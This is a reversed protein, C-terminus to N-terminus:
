QKLNLHNSIGALEFMFRFSFNGPSKVGDLRVGWCQGTYKLTVSADRLGAGTVDYWLSSVVQINKLPSFAAGVTYVNIEEKRDYRQGLSLTAKSVPITLDSLITALRRGYYDYSTDVQLSVPTKIGAELRIPLFPSGSNYTDIGQTLRVTLAESGKIIGRNLISFEVASTKGFLETADYVPIPQSSKPSYIFHYRISPEIIHTFLPFSRFFRTHATADYEFAAKLTDKPMDTDAAGRYFTYGTGRLGVTQLATVDTGFSHSLRSYLDLRGASVGNDRYFDSAATTAALMVEGVRTNNMVFGIEPLKQPTSVLETGTPPQLDIWYQSLFYARSNNMPVSIEGTSEVFRQIRIDRHTDYEQYFDKKNVYNLNLFGAFTGRDRDEHLARVELFDKGLQTDKIHYAWWASKINGPEIFRYEIGTGIGRKSFTDVVLTADRNEAIAWYFPVHLSTGRTKSYGPMPILFGTHRETDISASMYPTYLVPLDKIRFTTGQSKITDGVIINVEKGKFCWDPVPTDCTTFTAEPSYYYNEGKKELIKGSLHYNDKKGLFVADYLMGTKAELNMDAKDATLSTQRDDYRVNGKATLASTEESYLMEDAKIVADERTATVSGTLRYQRSAANYELHESTIVTAKEEALCICTSPSSLFTFLLFVVGIWQGASLLARVTRRGKEPVAKFTDDKTM